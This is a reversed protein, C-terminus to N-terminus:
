RVVNVWGIMGIEDHLECIWRYKGVANFTVNFHVLTPSVQALPVSTGPTGSLPSTGTGRDQAQAILLGSNIEDKSNADRHTEDAPDFDAPLVAYRTGDAATGNLGSTDVFAGPGGGVPCDPDDTPCGFTITHPEAPDINTFEVTQGVHVRLPSNKTIVNGQADVFRFMSGYQWGGGTAVLKGVTYVRPNAGNAFLGVPILNGTINVIQAAAQVNYALQTYPLDASPDLVHVTGNMSAHILCTFKFNGHVPFRVTYTNGYAALAGGSAAAGSHVCQLGSTGSPDYASDDPSMASGYAACGNANSPRQQAAPYPPVGVTAPQPQNLFTVTHAEDTALKWTISDNEHIWIENPIFAMVQRAQCGSALKDDGEAGALCDPLQSGARAQWQGLALQPVLFAALVILRRVTSSFQLSVLSKM